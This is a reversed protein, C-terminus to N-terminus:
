SPLGQGIRMEASLPTGHYHMQRDQHGDIIETVCRGAFDITNIMSAEILEWDAATLPRTNLVRDFDANHGPEIVAHRLYSRFADRPLGTRKITAEVQDLSAPEAEMVGIYGLLAVPHHHLIWYYQAGVLAGITAPPAAALVRSRDWGLAELDELLWEDHGTEGRCLGTLYAVLDDAAPEVGRLPELWEIAARMLPVTARGMCHQRFLLEPYFERVNAHSWLRGGEARLRSSLLWRKTHFRESPRLALTM